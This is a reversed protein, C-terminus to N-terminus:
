DAAWSEFVSKPRFNLKSLRDRMSSLSDVLSRAWMFRAVICISFLSPYTGAGTKMQLDEAIRSNGENAISVEFLRLWPILHDRM